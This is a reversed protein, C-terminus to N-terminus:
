PTPASDKNQRQNLGEIIDAAAAAGSFRALQQAATRASDSYRQDKLLMRIADAVLKPELEKSTGGMGPVLALEPELRADVAATQPVLYLAAGLAAARRANSERESYTPIILAPTGAALATLTSGHGGHHVMVDARRALAQGPAYGLPIFNAPLGRPLEQHGAGVVVDADLGALAQICADLVIASDCWITKGPAYQPKGAYLFILPRRGPPPIAAPLQVTPDGWALAGVHPLAPDPVPDTAPSGVVVATGGLLLRAAKDVPPLGADALAANFAGVPSPAPRPPLWWTFGRGDPHLDGQLVEVLPIGLIWAATCWGADFSDVVIDPGWARLVSTCDQIQRATFEHDCWGLLALFHDYDRVLPTPEAFVKSSSARMPPCELNGFGVSAILRAPAPDPSAFAVVHGRNVLEAAIPLLRSPLGLDDSRLSVFLIRM